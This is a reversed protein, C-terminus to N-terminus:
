RGGDEQFILWKTSKNNSVVSAADYRLDLIHAAILTVEVDLSRM